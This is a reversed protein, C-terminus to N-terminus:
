TLEFKKDVATEAGVLPEVEKLTEKAAVLSEDGAIREDGEVSTVLDRLGGVENRLKEKTLEVTRVTENVLNNANKVEWEDGGLSSLKEAKVRLEDIEKLYVNNEKALRKVSGTKIKLSRKITAEDSM